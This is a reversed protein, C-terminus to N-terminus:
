VKEKKPPLIWDLREKGGPLAMGRKARRLERRARSAQVTMVTQQYEAMRQDPMTLENVRIDMGRRACRGMGRVHQEHQKWNWRLLEADTMLRIRHGDQRGQIQTRKAIQDILSLCRLRFGEDTRKVGYAREITEPEIYTGRELTSFEIPWESSITVNEM